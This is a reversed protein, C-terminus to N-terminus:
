KYIVEMLDTMVACPNVRPVTRLESLHTQSQVGLWPQHGGTGGCVWVAWESVWFPGLRFPFFPQQDQSEDRRLIGVKLFKRSHM